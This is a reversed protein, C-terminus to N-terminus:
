AVEGIDRLVQEVWALDEALTRGCSRAEPATGRRFALYGIACAANCLRIRERDLRLGQAPEYVELAGELVNGAAVGPFVLYRFDQHRDAWCAGDYDFVGAVKNTGPVLAVNHFGLDAHVLVRDCAGGELQDEYRRLVRAVARLLRADARVHPLDDLLREKPEPWSPRKPLWGGLDEEKVRAHQQALVGGLARGIDRALDQDHSVWRYLGWPDCLGPVVSRVQWGATDAYLVRPVRFSCRAALVDLVRREAALRREGAPNMPFWAMRDDPLPVAWRDDRPEARIAEPAVLIGVSALLACATAADLAGASTESM